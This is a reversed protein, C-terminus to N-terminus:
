KQYVLGNGNASGFSRSLVVRPAHLVLGLWTFSFKLATTSASYDTM